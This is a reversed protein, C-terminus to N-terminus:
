AAAAPSSSPVRSTAGARRRRPDADALDPGRRDRPRRREAGHGACPCQGLGGGPGPPPVIARCRGCRASNASLPGRGPRHRACRRFAPRGAVHQRSSSTAALYRDLRADRVLRIDDAQRGARPPQRSPRGQSRCPVAPRREPLPLSKRGRPRRFPSGAADRRVTGAVLVVRRRPRWRLAFRHTVAAGRTPRRRRTRLPQPALVVRSPLSAYRAAGRPVARGRGAGAALEDSRLVEGIVHWAHWTRRCEADAQWHRCAASPRPTRRARRRGAGVAARRRM